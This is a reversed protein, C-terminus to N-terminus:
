FELTASASILRGETFRYIERGDPTARFARLDDNNFLDRINVQFTFAREKELDYRFRAFIDVFMISDSFYPQNPDEVVDGLSNTTTNFGIGVKDEWRAGGGVTVDGLWGNLFETKGFSYSTNFAWRWEAQEKSPNGDQLRGRNYPDVIVRQAQEALTETSDNNIFFNQAFSTNIWTPIVFENVLRGLVPYTNSTVTEQQGVTLLMTWEPTPNYAIEIEMGEATFDQTGNDGSNRNTTADLANWDPVFGSVDQVGQPALVAQSDAVTFGQAINDPNGLQRVLNTLIGAYPSIGGVDFSNNLVGTEYFNVRASFKGDLAGIIFGMEETAGTVPAIQENYVNVRGGSPQFNDAESAYVSLTFPLKEELFPPTHVMVSWSTTDEDADLPLPKQPGAQYTPDYINEVQVRGPMTPAGVSDSRQRDNRWTGTLVITDDWLYHQGVLVESEVEVREKGAFFAAPFNNNDQLTYTPAGFEVFQGNTLDWANFTSFVEPRSNQKGFPVGGIGVGALDSLSNIALFNTDNSVPLAWQQGTRQAPWTFATTDGGGIANAIAQIDINDRSYAERVFNSSEEILATLTFKGLLKTVWSDENMFDDFRLEGYGQIRVSDRKRTFDNGGSLGGMVPRGYNPNPILPGDGQNNTTGILYQNPDIYISRQMNGQLSNNGSSNFEQEYYSVEFGLRNDFYNGEIAATYVEWDSANRSTGGSFLNKRYDFISRDTIQYSVNSLSYFGATGDAVRSGDSRFGGTRRIIETETFPMLMMWEGPSGTIPGFPNPLGEGRRVFATGGWTPEPNSPDQYWANYGSSTGPLALTMVQNNNRGPFFTGNGRFIAGGEAPSGVVPKGLNIWPTIADNPPIFDPRSGERAASEASGRVTLGFPLKVTAAAFIRDDSTDAGKQEYGKDEALGAVRVAAMDGIMQNYRMSYRLTGYNDTEFRVRGRNGLFDARITSANVIGGPSGLGFLASNAGRQVEVRDTNFTDFPIDTVFYDRTLDAASLGRIRTVGGQQNDRQLEPIPNGFGQSGTFNGGLGGVETNPTFVLVDELNTSATDNLFEENVISISSGIDRLDTRLRTGALTATAQYGIDTDGTVEFPSLEVVNEDDVEETTAQAYLGLPTILM